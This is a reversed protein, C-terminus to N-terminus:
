LSGGLLRSGPVVLVAAVVVIVPVDHRQGRAVRADWREEFVSDTITAISTLSSEQVAPSFSIPM